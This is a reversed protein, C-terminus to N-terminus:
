ILPQLAPRGAPQVPPTGAALAIVALEATLDLFIEVATVFRCRMGKLLM